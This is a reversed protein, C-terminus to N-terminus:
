KMGNTLRGTQPSQETIDDSMSLALTGTLLSLTPQKLVFGSVIGDIDLLTSEPTQTVLELEEGRQSM